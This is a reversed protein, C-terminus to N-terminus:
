SISIYANSNNSRLFAPRGATLGAAVNVSLLLRRTEQQTFSFGTATTSTTGHRVHFDGIASLASAGPAALLPVPFIIEFIANTTTTCFGLAFPEDAATAQQFFGLKNAQRESWSKNPIELATTYVPELQVDALYFTNGLTARWNVQGFSTSGPTFNWDVLLPSSSTPAALIFQLRFSGAKTKTSPIPPYTVEVKQWTDATTIEYQNTHYGDSDPLQIAVGYIGTLNSKVWFSLRLPLAEDSFSLAPSLRQNPVTQWIQSGNPSPSGATTVTALLSFGSGTPHDTSQALSYGPSSSDFDQWGVFRSRTASGNFIPRFLSFDSNVLVNRGIGFKDLQVITETDFAVTEIQSWGEKVLDTSEPYGIDFNTTFGM